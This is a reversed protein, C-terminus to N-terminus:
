AGMWISLCIHRACEHGKRGSEALLPFINM